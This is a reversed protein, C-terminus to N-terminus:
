RLDYSYRAGDSGFRQAFCSLCTDLPDRTVHLIRAQPLILHIFGLFLHTGMSKDTVHRAAPALAQLRAAYSEGASAAEEAVLHPLYEPYPLSPRRRASQGDAAEAMYELEGAGHVQSHSALIQELLTTGSRAFGVIFIPLESRNGWGIRGNVLERTFVSEIRRASASAAARDYTFRSRALRNAESLTRFFDDHRELLEYVRALTFHVAVRDKVPLAASRRALDELQPLLGPEAKETLTNIWGAHAEAFSPNRAIAQAFARHAEELRGTLQLAKGRNFHCEAHRPDLAVGRRFHPEGETPRGLDRLANALNYHADAYDAKIEVAGRYAAVAEELREEARLANGLNNLAEAFDPKLALARRYSAEAEALRGLEKLALGLNNHGAALGPDAAVARRQCEAAEEYRHLDGLALGLNSLIAPHDPKLALARNQCAVAEEPRTLGRLVNGLNHLAEAQAPALALVQRYAAEAGALDGRQQM